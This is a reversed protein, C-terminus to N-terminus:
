ILDLVKEPPRGLVAKNNKVVIPRQILKPNEVMIQIWEEDNMTLGKLREKFFPESTRVIDVPKLNLQMLLKKLEAETPVHKLYEIVEVEVGNEKLIQLTERSKSCRPNHYIKM